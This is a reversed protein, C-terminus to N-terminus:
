SSAKLTFVYLCNIWWFSQRFLELHKSTPHRSHDSHCINKLQDNVTEILSRKRLLIKDIFKVLNQKM